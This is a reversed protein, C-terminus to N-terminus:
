PQNRTNMAQYWRRLHKLSPLRTKGNFLYNGLIGYLSYDVFLPHDTLLFPSTALISDIAKLTGCVSHVSVTPRYDM